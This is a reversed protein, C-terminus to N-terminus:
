WLLAGVTAPIKVLRVNVRQFEIKLCYSVNPPIQAIAKTFAQQICIASAHGVIFICIGKILQAIELCLCAEGVEKAADIIHAWDGAIARGRAGIPAIGVFNVGSGVRCFWGRRRIACLIGGTPIYFIEMINSSVVTPPIPIYRHVPAIIATQVGISFAYMCTICTTHTTSAPTSATITVVAFLQWSVVGGGVWCFWGRRWIICIIGGTHILYLETVLKSITTPLISIAPAINAM